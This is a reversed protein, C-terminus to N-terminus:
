VQQYILQLAHGQSQNLTKSVDKHMSKFVSRLHAKLHTTVESVPVQKLVCFIALAYLMDNEPLIAQRNAHPNYCSGCGGRFQYATNAFMVGFGMICSLVDIAAPIMNQGGPPTSQTARILVSALQQVLTAIMDQPQNVQSPNYGIQIINLHDPLLIQSNNDRLQGSCRITPVQHGQWQQPNVLVLPWHQMNSYEVTKAFINQAMGEISDVRGPYYKNNPLVLCTHQQFTQHGFETIAWAVCDFLWAKTDADIVPKPTFLSKILKM